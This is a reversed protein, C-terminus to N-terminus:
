ARLKDVPMQARAVAPGDGPCRRSVITGVWAVPRVDGQPTRTGFTDAARMVAVGVNELGFRTAMERALDAQQQRMEDFLEVPVEAAKGEFRCGWRSSLSILYDAMVNADGEADLVAVAHAVQQASPPRPAAPRAAEVDALGRVARDSRMSGSPGGACATLALLAIAGAVTRRPGRMTGTHAM